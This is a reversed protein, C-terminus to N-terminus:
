QGINVRSFAHTSAVKQLAAQEEPTTVYPSLQSPESPELGNNANMYAQMASRLVTRPSTASNWDGAGSSGYGNPGVVFRHDYDEDVATVQTIVWDGGMNINPTTNAPVVEWRQLVSADVPPDFYNRLQALDTPFQGNNANLYQKIAPSLETNIFTTEATGRLGSLARRYDEDTNLEGQAAKLWDNETLFQFEPIKAGPTQQIREKLQGVRALWSKAAIATPDDSTAPARDRLRAVEGRLRPLDALDRRLMENQSKLETLQRTAAELQQRLQNVQGASPDMQQRLAQMQEQFDSARHAEYLGTGVATALAAGIFAKQLTTMALTKSIAITGAIPAGAGCLAASALIATKLGAPASQVANSAILATLGAVGVARGHRSFFERLQDLARSVRKQAADESTGLTLGVERLSKGEFYRLLIATRDPLELAEMAEDLLPEIATWESSNSNMQTLDTAIQERRQRRSERRVVDIATRRTVQYLWATLVTGRELKGANRALDAFVSQAVEEALEPSRVQRLAASYVLKLHRDLLTAFADQRNERAYQDLLELDSMM